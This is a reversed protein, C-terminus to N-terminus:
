IFASIKHTREEHWLWWLFVIAEIGEAAQPFGLKGFLDLGFSVNYFPFFPAVTGTFLFDLFIHFLVGFTILAFLKSMKKNFDYFLLTIALFIGAFVFTHTYIRHFWPIGLGLVGNLIWYLPIDIDPLLGAVGGIFVFHLPISKKNKILHDRILDLTIITFLVHVVANPM